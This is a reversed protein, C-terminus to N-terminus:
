MPLLFLLNSHTYMQGLNLEVSEDLFLFSSVSYTGRYRISKEGTDVRGYTWAFSAFLELEVDDWNRANKGGWSSITHIPRPCAVPPPLEIGESSPVACDTVTNVRNAGVPLSRSRPLRCRSGNGNATHGKRAKMEIKRNKNGTTGMRHCKAVYRRQFFFNSKGTFWVSYIRM